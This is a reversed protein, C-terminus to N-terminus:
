KLNWDSKWKKSEVMKWFNSCTRHIDNCLEVNIDVFIIVLKILKKKTNNENESFYIGDAFYNVFIGETIGWHSNAVSLQTQVQTKYTDSLIPNNLIKIFNEQKPCKIELILKNKIDVGDFSSFIYPYDKHKVTLQKFNPSFEVKRNFLDLVNNSLAYPKGLRLFKLHNTTLERATDEYKVGRAMNENMPTPPAGLKLAFINFPGGWFAPLHGMVKPVESAGIGNRRFDLWEQSKQPLEKETFIYKM